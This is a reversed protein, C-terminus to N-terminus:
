IRPIGAGLQRYEKIEIFFPTEEDPKARPQLIGKVRTPKDGFVMENSPDLQSKRIADKSAQTIKISVLRSIPLCDMRIPPKLSILRTSVRAEFRRDRCLVVVEQGVHKELSVADDADLIPLAPPFAALLRKRSEEALTDLPVPIIKGSALKFKATTADCGTAAATMARGKIDTWTEPKPAHKLNWDTATQLLKETEEKFGALMRREKDPDNFDFINFKADALNIEQWPDVLQMGTYQLKLSASLSRMQLQLYPWQDRQSHDINLVVCQSSLREMATKWYAELGPVKDDRPIRDILAICLPVGTREALDCAEGVQDNGFIRASQVPAAEVPPPCVLLCCACAGLFRSTLSNM